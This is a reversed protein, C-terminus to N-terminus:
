RKATIENKLNSYESLDVRVKGIKLEAEIRVPVKNLDDTVWLVIANESDLVDKEHLELNPKIKITNYRGSPTKLNERGLFTMGGNYIRDDLFVPIDWTQNKKVNQFNITRAYYIASLIDFTGKKIAIQNTKEPDDRKKTKTNVQMTQWNFTADESYKFNGEEIRRVFIYPEFTEADIVTEYRDNLTFFRDYIEYNKAKLVIHYCDRGAIKKLQPRVEMEVEGVYVNAFLRYKVKYVLKEGPIFAKQNEAFSKLSFLMAFILAITRM